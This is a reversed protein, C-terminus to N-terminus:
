KLIRSLLKEDLILKNYKTKLKNMEISTQQQLIHEECKSNIKEAVEAVKPNELESQELLLLLEDIFSFTLDVQHVIIQNLTTILEANEGIQSKKENLRVKIIEINNFFLNSYATRYSEENENKIDKNLYKKLRNKIGNDLVNLVSIFSDSNIDHMFKNRFIMQLELNNHDDKSLVDIDYLLDIKNKFSIGAKNGFLKTKSKDPINLYLLLLTNIQDEIFLSFELVNTRLEM